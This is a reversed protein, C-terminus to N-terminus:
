TSDGAPRASNSDPCRARIGASAFAVMQRLVHEDPIDLVASDPNTRADGSIVHILVGIVFQFNLILEEHPRDPLTRALAGIYREMVPAFLEMKLSEFMEHPDVYLQAVLHRFSISGNGREHRAEFSPRFFADVLAEVPVPAGGAATELADLSDLRRRNLPELRRVLAAAVLEQKSGFHYNAASVSTAAAQTVARMSTGDFGHAAFLREAADLL